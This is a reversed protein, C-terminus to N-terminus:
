LEPPVELASKPEKQKVAAMLEEVRKELRNEGLMAVVAHATIEIARAVAGAADGPCNAAIHAILQVENQHVLLQQPGKQQQQLRALVALQEQQTLPRGGPASGNQRSM